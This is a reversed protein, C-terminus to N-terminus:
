TTQRLYWFHQKQPHQPQKVTITNSDNAIDVTYSADATWVPVLAKKTRATGGAGYGSLWYARNQNAGASSSMILLGFFYVDTSTTRIQFAENGKISDIRKVGDISKSNLTDIASKITQSSGAITASGVLKQIIYDGLVTLPIRKGTATDFAVVNETGDLTSLTEATLDQANIDAM